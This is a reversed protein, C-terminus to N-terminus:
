PDTFQKKWKQAKGVAGYFNDSDDGFKGTGSSPNKLHVKKLKLDFENQKIQAPTLPKTVNVTVTPNARAVPAAPSPPV